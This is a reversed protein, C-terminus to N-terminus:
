YLQSRAILPLRLQSIFVLCPLYASLKDASSYELRALRLDVRSFWKEDIGMKM